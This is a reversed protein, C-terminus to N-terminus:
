ENDIHDFSGDADLLLRGEGDIMGSGNFILAGVGLAIDFILDMQSDSFKPVGRAGVIMRCKEVSDIIREKRGPPASSVQQFFNITGMLVKSAKDGAAKKPLASLTLLAYGDSIEIRSWSSISGETNFALGSNKVSTWVEAYGVVPLYLTCAQSEEASQDDDAM